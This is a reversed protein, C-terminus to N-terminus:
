TRIDAPIHSADYGGFLLPSGPRIPLLAANPMYAALRFHGFRRMAKCSPEREGTLLMWAALRLFKGHSFVVCFGRCSALRQIFDDARRMASAFSEGDGDVSEPQCREWYTEVLPRRYASTTEMYHSSDLYTFEQVPWVEVPVGPYKEMLPEATQRTRVFSSVVIRDPTHEVAGAVAGAQKRGLETLGSEAPRGTPLGANSISQAHRVCWVRSSRSM